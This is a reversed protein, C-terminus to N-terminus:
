GFLKISGCHKCNIAAMVVSRRVDSDWNLHVWHVGEGETGKIEM